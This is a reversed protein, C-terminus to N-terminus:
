AGVVKPTYLQLSIIHPPVRVFFSNFVVARSPSIQLVVQLLSGTAYFLLLSIGVDHSFNDDYGEAV